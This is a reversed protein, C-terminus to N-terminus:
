QHHPSATTEPPLAPIALGHSQHQQSPSMRHFSSAVNRETPQCITLFLGTWATVLCAMALALWRRRRHNDERKTVCAGITVHAPPVSDEKWNTADLGSARRACV